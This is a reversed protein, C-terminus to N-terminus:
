PTPTACEADSYGGIWPGEGVLYGWSYHGDPNLETMSLSGVWSGDSGIRQGAPPQAGISVMLRAGPEGYLHFTARGCPADVWSQHSAQETRMAAYQEVATRIQEPTCATVALMAIATVLVTRKNM